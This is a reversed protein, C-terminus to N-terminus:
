GGPGVHVTGKPPPSTPLTSGYHRAPQSTGAGTVALTPVVPLSPDNLAVRFEGGARSAITQEPAGAWLDYVYGVYQYRMGAQATASILMPANPAGFDGKIIVLVLPPEEMASVPISGLGLSLLDNKTVSRSLSVQPTGSQVVFDQAVRVLALQGVQQPTSSTLTHANPTPTQDRGCDCANIFYCRSRCAINHGWPQHLSSVIETGRGDQGGLLLRCDMVCRTYM